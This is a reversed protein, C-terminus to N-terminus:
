RNLTRLLTRCLESIKLYKQFDDINEMYTKFEMDEKPVVEKHFKNSVIDYVRRKHDILDCQLAKIITQIGEEHIRLVDFSQLAESQEQKLLEKLQLNQRKLIKIATTDDTASAEDVKEDQEMNNIKITYTGVRGKIFNDFEVIDKEYNEKMKEPDRNIHSSLTDIKHLVLAKQRKNREISTLLDDVLRYLQELNETQPNMFLQTQQPPHQQQQPNSFQGGHNNNISFSM